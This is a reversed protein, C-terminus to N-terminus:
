QITERKDDSESDSEDDEISIDEEDYEDFEEDSMLSPDNRAFLIGFGIVIALVISVVFVLLNTGSM